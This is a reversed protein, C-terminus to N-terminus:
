WVYKASVVILVIAVATWLSLQVWVKDRLGSNDSHTSM